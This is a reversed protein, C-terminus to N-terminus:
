NVTPTTPSRMKLLLSHNKMVASTSSKGARERKWKEYASLHGQGDDDDDDDNNTDNGNVDTNKNKKRDRARDYRCKKLM